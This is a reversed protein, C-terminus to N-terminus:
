GESRLFHAPAQRGCGGPVGRRQGQTRCCYLYTLRPTLQAAGACPAETERGARLIRGAGREGERALGCGGLAASSGAPRRRFEWFLGPLLLGRRLPRAARVCMATEDQKMKLVKDSKCRLTNALRGFLWDMRPDKALHGMANDEDDSM